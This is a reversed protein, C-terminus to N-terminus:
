NELGEKEKNPGEVDSKQETKRRFKSTKNNNVNLKIRLIKAIKLKENNNSNYKVQYKVCLSYM